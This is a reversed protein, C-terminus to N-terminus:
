SSHDPHYPPTPCFARVYKEEIVGAKMENFFRIAQSEPTDDRAHHGEMTQFYHAVEHAVVARIRCSGTFDGVYIEKTKPDFLGVIENLYQSMIQEAKEKGMTDTWVRFSRRSMARFKEQLEQQRLYQINPMPYEKTVGMTEAVWDMIEEETMAPATTSFFATSILLLAIWYSIHKATKM